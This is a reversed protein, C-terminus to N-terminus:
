DHSVKLRFFYTNRERKREVTYGGHKPKRLNRVNASLSPEPDHIGYRRWIETHLQPVSWWSGDSLVNLVRQLQKGLRVHDAKTLEVGSDFRPTSTFLSPQASM